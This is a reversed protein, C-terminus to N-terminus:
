RQYVINRQGSSSQTNSATSQQNTTTRGEQQLVDREPTVDIVGGDEPMTLLKNLLGVIGQTGVANAPISIKSQQYAGKGSISPEDGSVQGYIYAGALIPSIFDFWRPKGSTQDTSVDEVAKGVGSLLDKLLDWLANLITLIVDSMMEGLTAPLDYKHGVLETAFWYGFVGVGALLAASKIVTWTISFAKELKEAKTVAFLALPFMIVVSGIIVYWVLTQIHQQRSTTIDAFQALSELLDMTWRVNGYVLGYQESTIQGAGLARLAAQNVRMLAKMNEDHIEQTIKESNSQGTPALALIQLMAARQEASFTVSYDPQVNRPETYTIGSLSDPNSQPGPRQQQPVKGGSGPAFLPALAQGFTQLVNAM